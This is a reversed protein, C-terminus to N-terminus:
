KDAGKAGRSTAREDPRKPERVAGYGFLVNASGEQLTDDSLICLAAGEPVRSTIRIEIKCNGNVPSGVDFQFEAEPDAAKEFLYRIIKLLRQQHIMQLPVGLSM